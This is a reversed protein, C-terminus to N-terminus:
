APERQVVSVSRDNSELQVSEGGAIEVKPVDREHHEVFGVMSLFTMRGGLNESLVIVREFLSALADRLDEAQGCRGDPVDLLRPLSDRANEQM